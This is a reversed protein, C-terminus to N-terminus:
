GHSSGEKPSVESKKCCNANRYTRSIVCRTKVRETGIGPVVKTKVVAMKNVHYQIQRNEPGSIM